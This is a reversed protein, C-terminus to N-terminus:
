PSNNVNTLSTFEASLLGIRTLIVEYESTNPKTKRLKIWLAEIIQLKFAITDM